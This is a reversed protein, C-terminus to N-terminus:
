KWHFDTIRPTFKFGPTQRYVVEATHLYTSPIATLPLLYMQDNIRDFMQAYIRDRLAPDRTSLGDEGLKLFQDDKIYLESRNGFNIQYTLHADPIALVPMNEMAMQIKGTSRLKRIVVDTQPNVTAEISVKRLEGAIAEAWPRYQPVTTIELKFGNAYGAEALLKKAEDRNFGPAATNHVCAIMSSICLAPLPRPDQGKVGIQKILLERDLAMIIARRVRVDTLAKAEESRNITDYTMYLINNGETVSAGFGPRKSFESMQDQTPNRMLDIGGTLLQAIQTQQDGIFYGEIRSIENPKGLKFDKFPTMVLKAGPEFSTLQMPGTGIGKRGYETKDAMPQHVKSDYVFFSRLRLMDIATPAVTHLRFTYPGTKEASKIVGTYRNQLFMKTDPAVTWNLTYVADDATMKNGSHFTIDDRLEFEITTPGTQRASKALRSEFTKKEENYIMLNDYLERYFFDADPQAFEYISLQPINTTVAIRLTDKAKQASAPFAALAAVAGAVAIGTLGNKTM